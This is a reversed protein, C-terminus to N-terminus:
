AEAWWDAVALDLRGDTNLDGVSLSYGHGAEAYDVTATFTGDGNGSLVSLRSTGWDTVALDLNGDGDFDGCRRLVHRQGACRGRRTGVSYGQQPAFTGDGRGLLVSVTDAHFNTAVLDLAGDADFDAAAVCSATDEVASSPADGTAYDAREAFTGDPEAVFVSVTNSDENGVALDLRSDGNLDAIAV